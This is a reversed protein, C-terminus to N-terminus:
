NKFIIGAIATGAERTVGETPLQGVISIIHELEEESCHGLREEILEDEHGACTPDAVYTRMYLANAFSSSTRALYPALRAMTGKATVGREIAPTINPNNFVIDAITACVERSADTSESSSLMGILSIIEGREADSCAEVCDAIVADERGACSPDFMYARSYLVDAFVTHTKELLLSMQAAVAEPPFAREGRQEAVVSYEELADAHESKEFNM